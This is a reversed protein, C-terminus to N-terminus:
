VPTPLAVTRRRSLVLAGCLAFGLLMLSRPEPIGVPADGFAINDVEFNFNATSLVVEDYFTTGLDFNIYRNSALSQQDGDAALGTLTAIDSGSFAAIQVHNSLFAVTNWSDLSGWYIGFYYGPTSFFLQVAGAEDPYSVALYNTTDLAPPAAHPLWIDLIAGAGSLTGGAFRYSPWVGISLDDFSLITASLFDPTLM